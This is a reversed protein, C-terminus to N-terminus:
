KKESSNFLGQFPKLTGSAYMEMPSDEISHSEGVLELKSYFDYQVGDGETLFSWFASGFESLDIVVPLVITESAEKPVIIKGMKQGEIVQEGRWSLRM